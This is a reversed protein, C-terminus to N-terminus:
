GKELPVEWGLLQVPTEQGAPKKVLQVVQFARTKLIHVGNLPFLACTQFNNKFAELFFYM